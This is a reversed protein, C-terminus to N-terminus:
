TSISALMTILRASRADVEVGTEAHTVAEPLLDREACPHRRRVDRAADAHGAADPVGYASYDDCHIIMPVSGRILIAGLKRVV